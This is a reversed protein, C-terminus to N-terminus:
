VPWGIMEGWRKILGDYNDPQRAYALEDKGIKVWAQKSRTWIHGAPKLWNTDDFTGGKINLTTAYSKRRHFLRTGCNPCFDCQLINGSTSGREFTKVEGNIELDDINVRVSEGFGSSSQKQCESCHCIYFVIPKSSLEYRVAGCQCGGTLPLNPMLIKDHIKNQM